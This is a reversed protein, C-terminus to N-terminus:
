ESYYGHKSGYGYGYGYKGYGYKGYGYHGGETVGNLLVVMNKFVKKNYLEDIEPLMGKPFLGARVVFLAMDAYRAIEGSEAVIDIPPCDLFIYDYEQRLTTLLTSLRDSLILEAPNPPITGVPIVDLDAGIPSKIIIEDYNDDTGSLYDAIGKVHKSNPVYKSATARRLDMDIVLVKSGKLAYSAALNMSLFSKGSGVQISTIAFVKNQGSKNMFDLKTRLIRFSENIINRSNQKVMIQYTDKKKRWPKHQLWSPLYKWKKKGGVLPIEGLYPAVLLELDKKTHVATDFLVKLLLITIPIVLAVILASLIILRKNPGIPMHSSHPAVIIQSNDSAFSLSLDNEEKKELLFLYLEEKIKQDRKINALHLAENPTNALQQQRTNMQQELSNAIMNTNNILGTLSKEVGERIVKLSRGMEAVVPNNPNSNALLKNRELILHNYEQIQSIIGSDTLKSNAPLTIYESESLASLMTKAINVQTRYDMVEKNLEMTQNFYARSAQDFDPVLNKSIYSSIDVEAENLEKVTVAIRQDVIESISKIKANQNVGLSSVFYM